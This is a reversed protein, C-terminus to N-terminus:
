YKSKYTGKIYHEKEGFKNILMYNKKRKKKKEMSNM